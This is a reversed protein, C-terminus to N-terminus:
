LPEVRGDSEQQLGRTLEILNRPNQGLDGKGVRSRSTASVVSGGADPNEEITVEIDDVFRLIATTRTLHFRAPRKGSESESVLEWHSKSEVWRRILNATEDVDM